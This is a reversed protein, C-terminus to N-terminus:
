NQFSVDLADALWRANQEIQLNRKEPPLESPSSTFKL